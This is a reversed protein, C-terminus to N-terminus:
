APQLEAPAPTPQPAAGTPPLYRLTVLTLVAMGLAVGFEGATSTLSGVAGVKEPPTSLMAISNSMVGTPSAGIYVVFTALLLGAMGGVPGVRTLLLNGVAALVVGAALVYAPGVRAAVAPASLCLVALAPWAGTPFTEPHPAGYDNARSIM